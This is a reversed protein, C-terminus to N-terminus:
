KTRQLGQGPVYNFNPTLTPPPTAGAGPSRTGPTATGEVKGAIEKERAEILGQIEKYKKSGVEEGMLKLNLDRLRGDVKEAGTIAQPVAANPAAPRIEAMLTALAASHATDKTYPAGGEEPNPKGVLQGELTKVRDVYVKAISPDNAKADAILKAAEKDAAIKATQLAAAKTASLVAADKHGQASIGAAQITANAQNESM